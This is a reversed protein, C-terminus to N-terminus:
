PPDMPPVRKTVAMTRTRKPRIISLPTPKTYQTTDHAIHSHTLLRYGSPVGFLNNISAQEGTYPLVLNQGMGMDNVLEITQIPTGTGRQQHSDLKNPLIPVLSNQFPVWWEYLEITALRPYRAFFFDKSTLRSLGIAVWFVIQGKFIPRLKADDAM